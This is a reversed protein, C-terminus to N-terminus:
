LKGHSDLDLLNQNSPQDEFIGMVNKLASDSLGGPQTKISESPQVTTSVLTPM